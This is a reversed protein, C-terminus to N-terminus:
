SIWTLKTMTSSKLESKEWPDKSVKKEKKM